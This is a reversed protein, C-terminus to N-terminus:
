IQADQATETWNNVNIRAVTRFDAAKVFPLTEAQVKLNDELSLQADKINKDYSRIDKNNAALQM